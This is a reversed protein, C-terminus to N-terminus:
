ALKANCMPCAQSHAQLWPVICDCHFRHSCPLVKVTEGAAYCSICVSCVDKAVVCEDEATLVREDLEAIVAAKVTKKEVTSDLLLLLEYDEPTLDRNSMDLLQQLTLGSEHKSSTSANVARRLDEQYLREAEAREEPTGPTGRRKTRRSPKVPASGFYAGSNISPAPKNDRLKPSEKRIRFRQPTLATDYSKADVLIFRDGIELEAKALEKKVSRTSAFRNLNIKEMKRFNKREARTVKDNVKSYFDEEFDVAFSEVPSLRDESDWVSEFGV